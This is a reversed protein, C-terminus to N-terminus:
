GPRREASAALGILNGAGDHDDGIECDCPSGIPEGDDPDYLTLWHMM